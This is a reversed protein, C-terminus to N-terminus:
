ESSENLVEIPKDLTILFEGESDFIINKMQRSEKDIEFSISALQLVEGTDFTLIIEMPMFNKHETPVYNEDLDFYYNCQVKVDKIKKGVLNKIGEINTAELDKIIFEGALNEIKGFHHDYFGKENNWGFSFSTDQFDLNIGCDVIWTHDENFVWYKDNITYFEIGTLEKGTLYYIIKNELEASM